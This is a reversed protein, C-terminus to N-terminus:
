NCAAIKVENGGSSRSLELVPLLNPIVKRTPLDYHVILALDLPLGISEAVRMGADTSLLVHAVPREAHLYPTILM